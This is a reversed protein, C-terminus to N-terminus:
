ISLFSIKKKRLFLNESEKSKQKELALILLLVANLCIPIRFTRNDRAVKILLLIEEVRRPRRRTISLIEIMSALFTDQQGKSKIKNFHGLSIEREDAINIQFCKYRKCCCPLGM